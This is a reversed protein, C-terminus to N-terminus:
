LPNRIKSDSANFEDALETEDLAASVDFYISYLQDSCLLENIQKHTENFNDIWVFSIYQVSRGLVRLISFYM